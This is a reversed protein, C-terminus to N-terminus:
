GIWVPFCNVKKIQIPPSTNLKTTQGPCDPKHCEQNKIPPSNFVSQSASRLCWLKKKVFWDLLDAKRLPRTHFWNASKSIPVDTRCRTTSWIWLSFENLSAFKTDVPYWHCLIWKTNTYPYKKLSHGRKRELCQWLCLPGSPQTWTVLDCNVFRSCLAIDSDRNFM